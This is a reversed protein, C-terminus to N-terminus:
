PLLQLELERQAQADARAMREQWELYAFKSVIENLSFPVNCECMDLDAFCDACTYCRLCWPSYEPLMEDHCTWCHEHKQGGSYVRYLGLSDYLISDYRAYEFLYSTNSYWIGQEEDWHGDQGNILYTHWRNVSSTTLIALKSSGIDKAVRRKMGKKDLWRQPLKALVEEAYYRTDSRYDGEPIKVPIIGNHIVITDDNIRFPHLNRIDETGHTALRFHVLFPSKPHSGMDQELSTIFEDFNKPMFRKIVPRGSLDIFGYGQGDPNNAAANELHDLKPKAAPKCLMALCM